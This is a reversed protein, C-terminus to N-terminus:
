SSSWNKLKWACGECVHWRPRRPEPRQLKWSTSTRTSIPPTPRREGVRLSRHNQLYSPFLGHDPGPAHLWILASIHPFEGGRKVETSGQFRLRAEDSRIGKRDIMGRGDEEEAKRERRRRRQSPSGGGGDAEDEDSSVDSDRGGTGSGTRGGSRSGKTPRLEPSSATEYVDVSTLDIDPLTSFKSM